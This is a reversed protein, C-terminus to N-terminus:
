GRGVSLGYVRDLTEPDIEPQPDSECDQLPRARHQPASSLLVVRRAREIEVCARVLTTLPFNGSSSSLEELENLLDAIRAPLLELIQGDRTEAMAIPDTPWRPDPTVPARRPVIQQLQRRKFERHDQFSIIDSTM